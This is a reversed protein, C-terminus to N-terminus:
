ELYRTLSNEILELLKQPKLTRWAPFDFFMLWDQLNYKHQEAKVFDRFNLAIIWGDEELDETWEEYYSEDSGHFNLVNEGILVFKSVGSDLLPDVVRRKLFMVDNHLTDNWEGIFEFVAFRSQYGVYLVKIYLTESGIYDWDPHIYYGYIDHTYQTYDPQHGLFPLKSDLYPDYFKLWSYFPEIDHM